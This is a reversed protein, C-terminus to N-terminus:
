QKIIGLMSAKINENLQVENLKRVIKKIVHSVSKIRWRVSHVANCRQIKKAIYEAEDLLTLENEKYDEAIEKLVDIAIGSREVSEASVGMDQLFQSNNNEISM